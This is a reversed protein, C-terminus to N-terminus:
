GSTNGKYNDSSTFLQFACSCRSHRGRSVNDGLYKYRLGFREEDRGAHSRENTNNKLVEDNFLNVQILKGYKEELLKILGGLLRRSMTAAVDTGGRRCYACCAGWPCYRERERYIYIYIYICIYMYIHIYIYIYM